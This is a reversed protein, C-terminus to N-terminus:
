GEVKGSPLIVTVPTTRHRAYRISSWTTTTATPRESRPVVVVLDSERIIEQEPVPDLHQVVSAVRKCAEHVRPAQKGNHHIETARSKELVDVLATFQTPNIGDNGTILGLVRSPKQVAVKREAKEEEVRHREYETLDERALWEALWRDPAAKLQRKKKPIRKPTPADEKM